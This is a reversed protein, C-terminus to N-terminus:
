NQKNNLIQREVVDSGQFNRPWKTATDWTISFQKGKEKPKVLRTEEKSGIIGTDAATLDAGELHSGGLDADVLNATRLVANEAHADFLKAKKLNAGTLKAETLQSSSLQANQLNVKVMQARKLDASPLQAGELDAEPLWAERMHAKYLNTSRLQAKPLKAGELHAGRMQAGSLNAASLNAGEMHAATLRAEELRAAHLQTSRLHAKDLLAKTLDAERLNAGDLRTGVLLAKEMHVGSLDMGELHAETLDILEGPWRYTEGALLHERLIKVAACRAAHDFKTSPVHEACRNTEPNGMSEGELPASSDSTITTNLPDARLYACLLAICADRQRLADRAPGEMDDPSRLITVESAGENSQAPFRYDSITEKRKPQQDAVFRRAEQHWEDSLASLSYLGGMRETANGSAIQSVVSAFRAHRGSERERQDVAKQAAETQDLSENHRRDAAQRDLTARRNTWLLTSVAVFLSLVATAMALWIDVSWTSAPEVGGNGQTSSRFSAITLHSPAIFETMLNMDADHRIFPVSAM